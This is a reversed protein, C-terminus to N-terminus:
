NVSGFKEFPTLRCIVKGLVRRQDVFGISNFRSDSSHNRNDGMVFLCGEPVQVPYDHDSQLVMADAYKAYDEELVIPNEKNEDYVTIVLRNDSAYVDVWQGETAIVRKVIPENFVTGTQHFVIIDKYEPTYFLDTVLLMEGHLLTNEMSQGDVRCVRFISSFIFLVICASIIFLEFYEFLEGLLTTKKKKTVLATEAEEESKEEVRTEEDTTTNIKNDDM